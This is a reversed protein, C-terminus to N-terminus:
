KNSFLVVVLQNATAYIGFIVPFIIYTAMKVVKRTVRKMELTNCQYSSFTPLSVSMLATVLNLVLSKPITDAKDYYGLEETSYIKGIVTSYINDSVFAIFHGLLVKSSFSLLYKMRQKSFSFGNGWNYFISLFFSLAVQQLLKQFVLAWIGYKLLALVIGVVGSLLSSTINVYFLFRFNMLSVNKAILITNIGNFFIVLAITRLVITLEKINYYVSAAPAFFYVTSYLLVALSMSLVLATSYDLWDSDTKKILATNFGAQIFIESFSVFVVALTIVGFEKPSLIRALIMTLMLTISASLLQETIKWILSSSFKHKTIKEM